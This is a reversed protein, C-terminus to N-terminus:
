VFINLTVILLKLDLATSLLNLFIVEWCFLFHDVLLQSLLLDLLDEEELLLLLHLLLLLLLVLAVPLLLHLFLIAHKLSVIHHFLLNVITLLM